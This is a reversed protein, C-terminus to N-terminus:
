AATPLEFRLAAEAEAETLDLDEAISGLPEHAMFRSRIADTSVGKRVIYPRGFSIRPDIVIPEDRGRPWWRVATDNEYDLDKLVETIHEWAVQGRRSLNVYDDRELEHVFIERGDHKFRMLILPRSVGYLDKAADIAARIAKMPVNAHRAAAVVAVELVENFTLLGSASGGTLPGSYGRGGQKAYTYGARWRAVSPASIGAYRAAEAATYQPHEAVNIM